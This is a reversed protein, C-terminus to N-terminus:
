LNRRMHEIEMVAAGTVASQQTQEPLCYAPASGVM